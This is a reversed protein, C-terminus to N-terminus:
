TEAHGSTQLHQIKKGQLTFVTSTKFPHILSVMIGGLTPVQHISTGPSTLSTLGVLASLCLWVTRKMAARQQRTHCVDSPRLGKYDEEEKGETRLHGGLM